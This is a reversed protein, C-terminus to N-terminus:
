NLVQQFKNKLKSLFLSMVFIELLKSHDVFRTGLAIMYFTPGYNPMPICLDQIRGMTM